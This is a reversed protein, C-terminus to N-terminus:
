ELISFAQLGLSVDLTCKIEVLSRHLLHKSFFIYRGFDWGDDHRRKRTYHLNDDQSDWNKKEIPNEGNM